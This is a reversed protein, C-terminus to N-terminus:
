LKKAAICLSKEIKEVMFPEFKAKRLYFQLIKDNFLCARRSNELPGTSNVPYADSNRCVVALTAGLKLTRHWSQLVALPSLFVDLYNTVISDISETKVGELNAANLFFFSAGIKKDDIDVGIAGEILYDGCCLDLCQGKAFQDLWIRETEGGIQGAKVQNVCKKYYRDLSEKRKRLRELMRQTM